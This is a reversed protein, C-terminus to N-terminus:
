ETRRLRRASGLTGDDASTREIRDASFLQGQNMGPCTTAAYDWSTRSSVNAYWFPWSRCQKPRHLYVTCGSDANWFICDHNLKELLSLENDGVERTYRERFEAASM